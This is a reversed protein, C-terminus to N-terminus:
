ERVEVTVAEPATIKPKCGAAMEVTVVGHPTPIEVRASELGLLRPRISIRGMGPELIEPSVLATPLSYLPTGGWAHSHDFSYTPEPPIFGEALGKDCEEVPGRWKDLIKFLYEGDLGVRHVASLVFHAFYPQYSDFEANDLVTRLIREADAGEVVGFAVALANANIRFYRKEVNEPMYLYLMEKPTPTNLGEFYLRREGDYLLANISKRLEM